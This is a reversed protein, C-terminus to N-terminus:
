GRARREVIRPEGRSVAAVFAAADEMREFTVEHIRAPM